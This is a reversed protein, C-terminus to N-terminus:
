PERTQLVTLSAFGFAAVGIALGAALFWTPAGSELKSHHVLSAVGFLVLLTLSSVTFPRIPGPRHEYAALFAGLAYALFIAAYVRALIATLSWPWLDAATGPAAALVVGVVAFVVCQVLFLPTLRHRGTKAASWLGLGLLAGVGVVPDVIYSVLWAYPVGDTTFDTWYWVTAILLLLTVLAFAAVLIRTEVAERAAASFVLGMAGALYFSAVFRTNLPTTQLPFGIVNDPDFFGTLGITLGQLAGISLYARLWWPVSTGRATRV